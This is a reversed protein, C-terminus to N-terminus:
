WGLEAAPITDSWHEAGDTGHLSFSIRRDAEPGSVRIMGFQRERVLTGPVRFYNLEDHDADPRRTSPGVTLDYLDYGRARVMRTFEGHGRGASVFLVGPISRQELEALLTDREKGAIALNAPDEVPNLAPRAMAVVRFTAPSSELARVLWHVQAEGLVQERGPDLVMRSRDDVLFLELDSWRYRSALLADDPASRGPAPWYTRFIRRRISFDEIEHDLRHFGIEGPGWTAVQPVHGFLKRTAPHRRTHAHRAAMALPSGLDAERLFTTSGLWLCFDPTHSAIVDFVGYGSGLERYPPEFPTEAVYHGSLLAITVDPPPFRDRFDPPTTFSQETAPEVIGGNWSIRYTYRTGPLLPGLAITLPEPRGNPVRIEETERLASLDDVPWYILKILGAEVPNVWVPAQRMEVPGVMPGGHLVDTTAGDVRLTAIGALVLLFCVIWGYERRPAGAVAFEPGCARM